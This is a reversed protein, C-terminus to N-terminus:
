EILLVLKHIPRELITKRNHDGSNVLVHVKRVLNDRSPCVDVVRGMKWMNRPSNEDSVLVVADKTVNPVKATWKARNQLNVLYQKRWETWFRNALTQIKRWRKRTYLDADCFKGPPSAVVESKMTLLHNPTVPVPGLPDYLNDASLPRCNIIAATEHFLTRLESTNVKCPSRNLLNTLVSRITRIQREWLGGMHSGTPPNFVFNCNFKTFIEATESCSLEKMSKQFENRAGVLNTGQDCYLTRVNGRISIFCRFANIFSDTSLDDLIEIHVARSSFCSFIVGYKKLQKRNENVLFPGFCDAGCHTFPASPETRAAPLDSMKQNQFRSREKRCTVCYHIHSSVVRSLGLIWFGHARIANATTGRGQHAVKQHFHQIILKTVHSGKPLIMPHKEEFQLSSHKMRGGVRIVGESDLFPDLKSLASSKPLKVYDASNLLELEKSFANEQAMKVVNLECHKQIEVADDLKTSQSFAWVKKVFVGVFKMARTWDSFYTLKEYLPNVSFGSFAHSNLSYVEASRLERDGDAVDFVTSKLEELKLDQQYLFAPGQLWTHRLDSVKCERSALDAPNIESAVHFWQSPQSLDRILQVRNAVFTQFRRAENNIYGMVIRSDTWFFNKVAQVQLERQIVQSVKVSLVAAQLELRPITVVRKPAVRAKGMVFSCQVQNSQSIMRLYSCQGYGKESADSFHHLEVAKLDQSPNVDPWYQRPIDLTNVQQLELLWSQWLVKFREPLADDWSLGTWCLQQLIRKGGLLLPALFGLPDYVSAVKSLVARRTDPCLGQTVSFQLKDQETCWEIGLTREVPLVDTGLKLQKLSDAHESKPIFSMLETYNSLFKHLRVGGAECLSRANSVLDKATDIDVVSCIGDDVYFNSTIFDRAVVSAKDQPNHHLQALSRLGYTACAPSSTAGFLHVTMRYDALSTHTEDEFWLFRLFDRDSENVEFQYFMKEIDCTIAIKNLRFRLLIGVLSNMLDPGALLCDNLSTGLHKASCDFVVRLKKKKPHRVGFHPIYWVGDSPACDRVREAEGNLIMADMFGCYQEFYGPDKNFKGDLIEFRRKVIDRNNSLRPKNKFPLPMSYHGTSSNQFSGSKMVSLFKLDDQSVEACDSSEAFDSELVQLIKESFAEKITAACNFTATPRAALGSACDFVDTSSLTVVRNTVGISDGSDGHTVSGASRGVVSWGLDTKVAFPESDGGVLTQRPIFAQACNYGILLGVECRQLPLLEDHIHSLHKIDAVKDPTPIHSTDAPIFQRSFCPPLPITTSGNHARVQLDFVKKCQISTCPAIMTGLKLVTDTCKANVREYTDDLVFCVDSMTDLLAYVLVEQTPNSKSSVWVPVMSTTLNGDSPSVVHCSNGYTARGPSVTHSEAGSPTKHLCTPHSKSCIDCCERAQCAKSMHGTHLCGFCLGNEMIFAHRAEWPRAQFGACKPLNHDAVKCFACTLVPKPKSVSTFRNESLQKPESYTALASNAYSHIANSFAGAQRGPQRSLLGATNPESAVIAQKEVFESFCEFPPYMHHRERYEVIKERWKLVLWRPLCRLIKQSERNDDLVSLDRVHKKATVCQKLFDSFSRLGEFDDPKIGPWNELKTRFAESVLFPDGFRSDLLEMAIDFTNPVDLLFLHEVVSLAKGGLFKSLHAIKNGSGLRLHQFMALLKFKWLTYELPDGKFVHPEAVKTASVAELVAERMIESQDSICGAGKLENLEKERKLIRIEMELAELRAQQMKAQEEFAMLDGNAKVPSQTVDVDQVSNENCSQFHNELRDLLEQKNGSVRLGLRKLKAKLQKVTFSSFQGEMTVQQFHDSM